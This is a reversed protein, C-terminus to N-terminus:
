EDYEPIIMTLRGKELDLHPFFNEVFPLEVYEKKEKLKIKLITQVGNDTYSDVVGIEYADLDYVALGILDEIYFEDSDPEPFKDRPFFIKFPLMAEVQNRDKVDKLYCITKNGFHISEIEVEKGNKDITSNTNEPFITILSGKSLVSDEVNFLKFLFGGKIGHPKNSTGLQILNKHEM